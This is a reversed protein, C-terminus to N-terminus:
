SACRQLRTSSNLWVIGAAAAMGACCGSIVSIGEAVARSSSSAGFVCQGMAVALGLHKTTAALLLLLVTCPWRLVHSTQCNRM